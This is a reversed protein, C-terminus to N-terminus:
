GAEGGRGGVGRVCVSARWVRNPAGTRPLPLGRYTWFGSEGLESCTGPRSVGQPASSVGRGGWTFDGQFAPYPHRSSPPSSVGGRGKHFCGSGLIGTLVHGLRSRPRRRQRLVARSGPPLRAPSRPTSARPRRPHPRLVPPPPCPGGLFSFPPM